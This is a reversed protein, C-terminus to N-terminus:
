LKKSTKETGNNTRKIKYDHKNVIDAALPTFPYSVTEFGKTLLNAIKQKRWHLKVYVFEINKNTLVAFGAIQDKDDATCAIKITTNQNEMISRIHRNAQRFFENSHSDDLDQSYWLANRWTSYIFASDSYTNYKRLIIKVPKIRSDNYPSIETEIAMINMWETLKKITRHVLIYSTELKREIQRVTNGECHLEWINNVLKPTRKTNRQNCVFKIAMEYEKTLMFHEKKNYFPEPFNSVIPCEAKQNIHLDILSITKENLSIVSSTGTWKKLPWGGNESSIPKGDQFEFNGTKFDEIDSFGEKALREYWKLQIARFNL